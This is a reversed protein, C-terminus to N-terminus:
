SKPNQTKRDVLVVVAGSPTEQFTRKSSDFLLSRPLASCNFSNTEPGGSVVAIRDGSDLVCFPRGWADLYAKPEQLEIGDSTAPLPQGKQRLAIMEGVKTANMATDLLDSYHKFRAPDKLYAAMLGKNTVNTSPGQSSLLSDMGGSGPIPSGLKGHFLAEGLTGRLAFEIDKSQFPMPGTELRRYKSWLFLGVPLALLMV